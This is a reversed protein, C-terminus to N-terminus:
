LTWIKRRYTSVFTMKKSMRHYKSVSGHKYLRQLCGLLNKSINLVFIVSVRSYSLAHGIARFTGYKLYERNVPEVVVHCDQQFDTVHLAKPANTSCGTNHQWSCLQIEQCSFCRKAPPPTSLLKWVSFPSPNFSPIYDLTLAHLTCKPSSSHKLSTSSPSFDQITAKETASVMGIIASGGMDKITRLVVFHHMYGRKWLSLFRQNSESWCLELNRYSQCAVLSWIYLKRSRYSAQAAHGLATKTNVTERWQSICTTWTPDTPLLHSRLKQQIYVSNAKIWISMVPFSPM